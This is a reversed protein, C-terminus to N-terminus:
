DHDDFWDPHLFKLAEDYAPDQGICENQTDWDAEEFAQILDVYIDVRATKDAVHSQVTDIVEGFLRSGSCWGM